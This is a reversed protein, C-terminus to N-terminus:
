ENRDGDEGDSETDSFNRYETIAADVDAQKLLSQNVATLPQAGSHFRGINHLRVSINELIPHPSTQQEFEFLAQVQDEYVSRYDNATFPIDIRIGTGWEDILNLGAALVIGLGQKPFPNFLEPYMVGEDRRNAFWMVNVTKQLIPNRYIGKRSKIDKFTFTLEDKLEEALQRNRAINKKNEGSKFGYILEVMSKMKTKLEGRLHSGRSTILKSITPSLEMSINLQRCATAWAERLFDLEMAHDPFANRTSLFCRYITIALAIVEQTVDDFDKAKARGSSGGTKQAQVVRM